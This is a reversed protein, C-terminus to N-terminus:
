VPFSQDICKPSTAWDWNEDPTRWHPGYRAVLYLETDAEDKGPVPFAGRDGLASFTKLRTNEVLHADFVLKILDREMDKCGNRYAAHWRAEGKRYFLFLDTKVGDRVFAIELGRHRLGFVHKVEFGRQCLETVISWEFDEELIGIDTDHDHGIFGGERIIGLCTGAELWYRAKHAVLVNQISALNFIAIDHNM